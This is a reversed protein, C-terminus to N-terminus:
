FRVAVRVNIGVKGGRVKEGDPMVVEEYAAKAGGQWWLPGTRFLDHRYEIGMETSSTLQDSLTWGKDVYFSLERLKGIELPWVALPTSTASPVGHEDARVEVVVGGPPCDEIKWRGITFQPNPDKKSPPPTFGQVPRTSAQSGRPPNSAELPRSIRRPRYVSQWPSYEIGKIWSMALQYLLLLAFAVLSYIILKPKWTTVV